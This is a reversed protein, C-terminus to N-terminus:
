RIGALLTAWSGTRIRVLGLSPADPYQRQWQEYYASSPRRGIEECHRVYKIVWDRVENESWRRKYREHTAARPMLGAAKMTGNWSGFRTVLTATTVADPNADRYTRYEGQTLTDNDGAAARVHALIEEDSRRRVNSRPRPRSQKIHDGVALRVWTSPASAFDAIVAGIDRHKEWSALVADTNAELWAERMVRQYAGPDRRDINGAVLIQRIRERTLGFHDGIKALSQGALYMEAMEPLLPHNSAATEPRIVQIRGDLATPIDGTALDDHNSITHTTM